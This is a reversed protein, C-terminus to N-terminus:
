LEFGYGFRLRSLYLAGRRPIIIYRNYDIPNERIGTQVWHGAFAWEVSWYTQDTVKSRFGAALTLHYEELYPGPAFEGMYGRGYGTEAQIYPDFDSDPDFHYGFVFDLQFVSGLDFWSTSKRSFPTRFDAIGLRQFDLFSLPVEAKGLVTLYRFAAGFAMGSPLIQKYSLSIEDSRLEFPPLRYVPGFREIFPTVEPAYLIRANISAELFKIDKKVTNLMSGEGYIAPGYSLSILHKKEAHLGADPWFVLLIFFLFATAKFLFDAPTKVGPADFQHFIM